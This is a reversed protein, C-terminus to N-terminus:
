KRRSKKNLTQKKINLIQKQQTQKSQPQKQKQKKVPPLVIKKPSHSRTGSHGILSVGVIVVIMGIIQMTSLTENLFFVSILAVWVFGLAIIPYLVSLEGHKLAFILLVGAVLSLIVGLWLMPQLLINGQATAAQKFIIQTAAIILTCVLVLGIAWLPTKPKANRTM